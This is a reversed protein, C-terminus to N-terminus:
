GSVTILNSILSNNRTMLTSEHKHRKSSLHPNRRKSQISDSKQHWSDQLTSTELQQSIRTCILVYLYTYMIAIFDYRVGAQKLNYAGNFQILLMIIIVLIVNLSSHYSWKWISNLKETNNFSHFSSISFLYLREM